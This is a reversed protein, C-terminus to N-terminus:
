ILFISIYVDVSGYCAFGMQDHVEHKKILM